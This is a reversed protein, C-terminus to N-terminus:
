VEVLRPARELAGCLALAGVAGYPNHAVLFEVLSPSRATALALACISTDGLGNSRVDLRTLVGPATCAELMRAIRLGGRDSIRNEALCIDGLRARPFSLGLEVASCLADCGEDAIHNGELDLTRLRALPEPAMALLLADEDGLGCGALRLRGVRGTRLADAVRGQRASLEAMTETAFMPPCPMDSM